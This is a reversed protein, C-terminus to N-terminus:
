FRIVQHDQGSERGTRDQRGASDTADLVVRLTILSSVSAAPRFTFFDAPGITHTQINRWVPLGSPHHSKSGQWSWLLEAKPEVPVERYRARASSNDPRQFRVDGLTSRPLGTIRVGHDRETRVAEGHVHGPHSLGRQGARQGARDAPGEVPDLERAVEQRRIHEADRDEIGLGALELELRPRHERVEDQGVLDVSRRRARLAREREAELADRGRHGFPEAGGTTTGGATVAVSSGPMREGVSRTPWRCGRRAGSNRRSETTTPRSQGGRERYGTARDPHGRARKPCETTPPM